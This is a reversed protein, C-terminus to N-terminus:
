MSGFDTSLCRASQMDSHRAQFHAFPGLHAEGDGTGIDHAEYASLSTKPLQYPNEELGGCLWSSHSDGDHIEQLITNQQM